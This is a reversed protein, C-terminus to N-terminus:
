SSGNNPKLKGSSKFSEVIYTGDKSQMAYSVPTRGRKDKENADVAKLRLLFRVSHITGGMVAHHMLTRGEFDRSNINAGRSLLTCITLIHGQMVACALPTRGFRDKTELYARNDLLLQVTDKRGLLAANTLPTHGLNNRAEINAKMALLLKVADQHGFSAAWNLPTTGLVDRAEIKADNELLIRIISTRGEQAAIILATERNNSCRAELNAGKDILMKVVDKKGKAVAFILPSKGGISTACAFPSSKSKRKRSKGKGSTSTSSPRRIGEVFAGNEILLSATDSDGNEIALMLPTYDNLTVRNINVHKDILANIIDRQRSKIAIFLPTQYDFGMAEIDAGRHILHIILNKQGSKIALILPTDNNSDMAEMNAGKEILLINEHGFKAALSLPAQGNIDKAEINAGKSFLFRAIAQHGYQAALILPTRGLSDKSELNHKNLLLATITEYGQMVAVHLITQGHEKDKTELDSTDKLLIEVVRTHGNWTAWWIPKRLLSDCTNPCLGRALLEAVVHHLGFFAAVHLSTLASPMADLLFLLSSHGYLLDQYWSSQAQSHGLFDIVKSVELGMALAENTHYAWYDSAYNYLPYEELRRCLSEWTLSLDCQFASFSLYTMCINTMSAHAREMWMNDPREFYEQATYHVLEVSDGEVIVLSACARTIHEVTPINDPNRKSAGLEVALAEQIEILKLQRKSKVIWSLILLADRPLDGKLQQIREMSKDYAENLVNSRDTLSSARHIDKLAIRLSAPSRKGALSQIHLQALLFMGGIDSVVSEKIEKQLAKDNAVFSPLESMRSDLFQFVDHRTPSINRSLSGEFGAAIHNIAARSTAFINFGTKSQITFIEDLFKKRDNDDGEDLADILIFVRSFSQILSTLTNSLEGLYPRSNMSSHRDRLQHVTESIPSSNEALQKVLTAIMQEAKQDQHRKFNYYLYAVGVTNDDRYKEVLHNVLIAMQFTKGAGPVGQCFLTQKSASIWKQVEVSKLFDQGTHPECRRFYDHQLLPFDLPSLWNLTETQKKLANDDLLADVHRKTKIAVEHVLRIDQKVENIADSILRENRVDNHQISGLLEKAFAAAVAAAHEQWAKNKHSDCYDCIGRIVICPFNNMLGAAEMEFCLVDGGLSRNVEDRLLGDKIVKNGSAITGYHVRMSLRRKRKVIRTKDCFPCPEECEDDSGEDDDLLPEVIGGTAGQTNMLPEHIHAYDARFLLDQLSDSKLYKKALRPYKGKLEELLRPVKSGTMEHESELKGLATLLSGPPNSLAGTREFKGGETAKGLDWQVVGPYQRSPTSVVVDGLRVKTPVGGGIGVLLGIKIFPFARIMLTAVNAASNTGYQGKPLCAIVVNHSSISGLTYTNTDNMPKPLDAHREDLMATAATQEKPLACIWGVSYDECSRKEPAM